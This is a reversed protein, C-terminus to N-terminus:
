LETEHVSILNCNIFKRKSTLSPDSIHKIALTVAYCGIEFTPQQVTAIKEPFIKCLEMGNFVLIEIDENLKLNANKIARIAGIALADSPVIVSDPMEGKLIDNMAHFGDSVSTSLTGISKCFSNERKGTIIDFIKKHYSEMNFVDHYILATKVRNQSIFYDLILNMTKKVDIGVFSCKLESSYECCQVWPKDGIMKQINMNTTLTDLSIMADVVCGKLLNLASMLREPLSFTNFLLVNYGRKEANSSISKIIEAHFLNSIDPVVVLILHTKSSRLNKALLNPQYNLQKIASLVRERSEPKVKNNNNLVRSVTAVSVKALLALKRVSM